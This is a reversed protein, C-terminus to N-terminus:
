CLMTQQTSPCLGPGRVLAQLGMLFTPLHVASAFMFFALKHLHHHISQGAGCQEVKSMSIAALGVVASFACLDRYFSCGAIVSAM